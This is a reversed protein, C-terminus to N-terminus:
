EILAWGTSDVELGNEDIWKDQVYDFRYRKIINSVRKLFYVNRTAIGLQEREANNEFPKIYHFNFDDLVSRGKRVYSYDDLLVHYKIKSNLEGSWSLVGDTNTVYVVLDYLTDLLSTGNMTTMSKDDDYRCNNIHYTGVLTLAIIVNYCNSVTIVHSSSRSELPGSPGITINQCNIFEINFQSNYDQSFGFVVNNKSYCNIIRSNTVSIRTISSDSPYDFVCDTILLTNDYRNQIEIDEGHKGRYFIYHSSVSKVVNNSILLNNPALGLICYVDSELDKNWYISNNSIIFNSKYKDAKEEFYTYDGENTPTYSVYFTVFNYSNVVINNSIIFNNCVTAEGNGAGNEWDSERYICKLEVGGRCNVLKNNVFILNKGLYADVCSNTITDFTCGIVYINDSVGCQICDFNGPGKTWELNEDWKFVTNICYIINKSQFDDEDAQRSSVQVGCNNFFCDKIVLSGFRGYLLNNIQDTSKNNFTCHEFILNPMSGDADQSGFFGTFNSNESFNITVDRFRIVYDAPDFTFHERMNIIGNKILLSGTRRIHSNGLNNVENGLLDIEQCIDSTQSLLQQLINSGYNTDIYNNSVVGQISIDIYKPNLVETSSYIVTGNSFSGGQFDLTCGEPITLTGGQLDIDKTIKYIMNSKSFMQQIEEINMLM